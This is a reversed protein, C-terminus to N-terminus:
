EDGMLEYVKDMILESMEHLEQKSFSKEKDDSLMFPKGINIYIRGFLRYDGSIGVPIVPVNAETAFMAAGNKVKVSSRDRNRMRTGEPFIGVIHGEKLLKFVNKLSSVDAFSRKVPFAGLYSIM